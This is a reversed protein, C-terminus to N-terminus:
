PLIRVVKDEGSCAVWIRGTADTGIGLPNRGVKLRNLERGDPAIQSVTDSGYNSVWLNGGLDRTLHVPKMDVPTTGIKTGDPRLHWVEGAGQVTVWWTKAEDLFLSTPAMPVPFTNTNVLGGDRSFAVLSGSGQQTFWIGLGGVPVISYPGTGTPYTAIFGATVSIRSISNGTFNAVWVEDSTRDYTTGVPGGDVDFFDIYSGARNVRVVVKSRFLSVWVVDLRDIALGYSESALSFEGLNAGSNGELKTLAGQRISTVWVEGMSNIALVGAGKPVPFERDIKPKTAALDLASSADSQNALDNPDTRISLDVPVAAKEPPDVYGGRSCASASLWWSMLLLSSLARM